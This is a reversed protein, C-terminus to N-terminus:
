YPLLLQFLRTCRGQPCMGGQMEQLVHDFLNRFDENDIHNVCLYLLDDATVQNTVDYNANTGVDQYLQQLIKQATDSYDYKLLKQIESRKINIDLAWVAMLPSYNSISSLLKGDFVHVDM